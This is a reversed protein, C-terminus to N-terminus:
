ISFNKRYQLPTIKYKEFFLKIFHSCDNFGSELCAETVSSGAELMIKANKLKVDRLHESPTVSLYQKFIRWVGTKSIGFTTYIENWICQSNYNNEIYALIKLMLIHNQEKPNEAKRHRNLVTLLQIIYSYAEFDRSEKEEFRLTFDIQNLLQFIKKVVSQSYKLIRPEQKQEEFINLFFNKKEGFIDFAKKGFHLYYRDMVCSHSKGCHPVNPNIALVDGSNLLFEKEGIIIDRTGGLFFILEYYDQTHPMNFGNKYKKNRIESPTPTPMIEHIFSIHEEYSVNEKWDIKLTPTIAM